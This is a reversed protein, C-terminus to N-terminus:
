GRNTRQYWGVWRQREIARLARELQNRTKIKDDNPAGSDPALAAFVEQLRTKDNVKSWVPKQLALIMQLASPSVFSDEEEYPMARELAAQDVVWVGPTADGMGALNHRTTWPGLGEPHIPAFRVLCRALNQIEQPYGQLSNHPEDVLDTVARKLEDRAIQRPVTGSNAYTKFNYAHVQTAANAPMPTLASELFKLAHYADMPVREEMLQAKARLLSASVPYFPELASAFGTLHRPNQNYLYAQKVAWAEQPTLGPDFAAAKTEEETARGPEEVAETGAISMSVTNAANLPRQSLRSATNRRALVTFYGNESPDQTVLLPSNYGMAAVHQGVRSLMARQSGLDQRWAGTVGQPVRVLLRYLQGPRDKNARPPLIADAAVAATGAAALLAGISVLPIM